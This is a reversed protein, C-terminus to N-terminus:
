SPTPRRTPASGTCACRRTARGTPRRSRRTSPCGRTTSPRATRRGRRRARVQRGRHRGRRLGGRDRRGDRLADGRRLQQDEEPLRRAERGLLGAVRRPLRQRGRELTNPDLLVKEAGDAGEKWYVVSKEKNAHRRTFFYRSGRHMRPASPTSTSLAGEAARRDRRAGAAVRPAAAHPRGAGEDLGAGRSVERGRALPVPRDGPRRAPREHREGDPEPSLAHLGNRGRPGPAVAGAPPRSPSPAPHPRRRAEEHHSVYCARRWPTSEPECPRRIGGGARTEEAAKRRRHALLM